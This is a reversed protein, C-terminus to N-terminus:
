PLRHLMQGLAEYLADAVERSIPVQIYTVKREHARFVPVKNDTDHSKIEILYLEHPPVPLQKQVTVRTNPLKVQVADSYKRTKM